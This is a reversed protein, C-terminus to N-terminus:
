PNMRQRLTDSHLRVHAPISSMVEPMFTWHHVWWSVVGEQRVEGRTTYKWPQIVIARVATEADLRLPISYATPPSHAGLTTLSSVM